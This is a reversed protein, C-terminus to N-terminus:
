FEQFEICIDAATDSVLYIHKEDTYVSKKRHKKGKARQRNKERSKKM